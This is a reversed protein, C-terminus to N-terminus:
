GGAITVQAFLRSNLYRGFLIFAIVWIVQQLCVAMMEAPPRNKVILDIPTFFFLHFPLVEVISAVTGPYMFIPVLSGSLLRVLNEKLLDLGFPSVTWFTALGICVDLSVCLLVSLVIMAAAGLPSDITPFNPLLGLIFAGAFVPLVVLAFNFAARGMATALFAFTLDVPRLMLMEISGLDVEQAIERVIRTNSAAVVAQSLIAYAIIQERSYQYTQGSGFLASWISIIITLQLIGNILLVVWASRYALSRRFGYLFYPSSSRMADRLM